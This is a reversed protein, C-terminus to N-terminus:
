LKAEEERIIHAGLSVLRDEIQEYGRDIQDIGTIISEGGAVLAALLVTAGARLDAIELVANHLIRPGQIRIAQLNLSLSNNWNFNYVSKPDKVQPQYFDIDAGMKILQSVYSFRNEFVTEHLTSLGDAQTMLLAWPGQWDTMFGPHPATVIDSPKLKSSCFYETIFDSHDTVSGGCSQFANIFSRLNDRQSNRVTINGGIAAAAVAFTVEENRDSMITYEAPGLTKVGEVVIQRPAIRKIRAGMSSLFGILDDVEVESAANKLVTTGRALVAALILAETGTHTNKSFEIECGTLRDAQGYFFGDESNYTIDAGMQILGEILRNIPRAGIRCGGPNPVSAQGYRALLPGMVLASTRLRAGIDLPVKGASISDSSLVLTHKDFRVKAGLHKLLEIMLYVDRIHPVNHVVVEARTLLSAACIKLAVNKAGALQVEGNLKSGGVVRFLDM